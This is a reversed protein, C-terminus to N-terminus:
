FLVYRDHLKNMVLKEMGENANEIDFESADVFIENRSIQSAMFDLFERVIKIQENVTWHKKHFEKIFSHFINRLYM